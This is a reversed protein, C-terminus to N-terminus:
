ILASHSTFTRRLDCFHNQHSALYHENNSKMDEFNNM